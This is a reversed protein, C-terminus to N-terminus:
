DIRVERGRVFDKDKYPPALAPSVWFPPAFPTGGVLEEAKRLVRIKYRLFEERDEEEWPSDDQNVGDRAM